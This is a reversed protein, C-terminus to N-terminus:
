NIFIILALKSLLTDITQYSISRSNIMMDTNHIPLYNFDM